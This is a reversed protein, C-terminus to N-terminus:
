LYVLRCEVHHIYITINFLLILDFGKCDPYGYSYNDCADCNAGAYYSRCLCRDEGDHCDKSISGEVSCACSALSIKKYINYINLVLEFLSMSAEKVIFRVLPLMTVLLVCLTIIGICHLRPKMKACGVFSM